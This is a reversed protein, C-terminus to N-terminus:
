MEVGIGSLPKWKPPPLEKKLSNVNTEIRDVACLFLENLLEAQTKCKSPSWFNGKEYPGIGKLSQDEGEYKKYMSKEM